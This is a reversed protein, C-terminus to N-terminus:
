FHFCPCSILYSRPRCFHVARRSQPKMLNAQPNSWQQIKNQETLKHNVTLPQSCNEQWPFFDYHLTLSFWSFYYYLEKPVKYRSLSIIEPTATKFDRQVNAPVTNTDSTLWEAMNQQKKVYDWCQLGEMWSKFWMLVNKFFTFLSIPIKKWCLVHFWTSLKPKM